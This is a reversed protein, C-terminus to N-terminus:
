RYSRKKWVKEQEIVDIFCDGSFGNPYLTSLNQKELLLSKDINIPKETFLGNPDNLLHSDDRLAILIKEISVKLFGSFLEPDHKISTNYGWITL